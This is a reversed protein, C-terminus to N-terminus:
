QSVIGDTSGQVSSSFAFFSSFAETCASFVAEFSLANHCDTIVFICPCNVLKLKYSYFCYIVSFVPVSLFVFM